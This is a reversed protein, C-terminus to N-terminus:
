SETSLYEARVRHLWSEVAAQDPQDPLPTTLTAFRDRYEDLVGPAVAPDAAVALGFATSGVVGELLVNL